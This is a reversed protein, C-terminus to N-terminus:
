GYGYGKGQGVEKFCMRAESESGLPIPVVDVSAHPRRSFHVATELFLVSQGEKEFMRRLCSKYRKVEVEIDEECKLFSDIHNM